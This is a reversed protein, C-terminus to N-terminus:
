LDTYNDDENLLRNNWPEHKNKLPLTFVVFNGNKGIADDAEYKEMIMGKKQYLAVSEKNVVVDTYLRFYPYNKAKVIKVTEDFVKSGIGKNRFKPLVGYWGMFADVKRKDFDYWGTIACPMDDCYVLFYESFEPNHEAFTYDEESNSEPFLQRKIEIMISKNVENMKEFKINM